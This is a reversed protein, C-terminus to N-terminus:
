KTMKDCILVVRPQTRDVHTFDFALDTNYHCPSFGSGTKVCMSQCLRASCGSWM